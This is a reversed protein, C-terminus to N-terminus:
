FDALELRVTFEDGAGIGEAMRVRKSVLLLYSARSADKFVSTGWRSRGMEVRVRVSGFGGRLGQSVQDIEDAVDLPLYCAFIDKPGALRELVTAFEYEVGWIQGFPCFLALRKGLLYPPKLLKKM